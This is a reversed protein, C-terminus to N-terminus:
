KSLFLDFKISSDDFFDAVIFPQVFNPTDHLLVNQRDAEVKLPMGLLLMLLITVM